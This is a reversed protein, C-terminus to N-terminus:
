FFKHGKIKRLSGHLMARRFGSSDRDDRGEATQDHISAFVDEGKCVGRHRDDVIDEASIIVTDVLSQDVPQYDELNEPNTRIQYIKCNRYQFDEGSCRTRYEPDKGGECSDDVLFPCNYPDDSFSSPIENLVRLGAKILRRKDEIDVKAVSVERDLGM